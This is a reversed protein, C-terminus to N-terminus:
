REELIGIASELFEEAVKAAQISIRARELNAAIEEARESM